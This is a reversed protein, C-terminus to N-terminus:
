PKYAITRSRTLERLHKRAPLPEPSLGLLSAATAYRDAFTTPDVSVSLNVDKPMLSSIVRLYTGPETTACTELAQVGFREWSEILDSVFADALRNRSGRPRGNPNGSQGPKFLHAPRQKAVTFDTESM